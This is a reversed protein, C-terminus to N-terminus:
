DGAKKAASKKAPKPELEVHGSEVLAEVNLVRDDLTTTEGPAAGNVPFPGIVKAKHTAM